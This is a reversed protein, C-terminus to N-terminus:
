GALLVGERGALVAVLGRLLSWATYSVQGGRLVDFAYVQHGVVIVWFLFQYRGKTCKHRFRRQAIFAGPWGGFFELVHLRLESIRWKGSQAQRKDQWYLFYSTLSAAVMFGAIWLSSIPFTITALAVFPLTLLLALLLWNGVSLRDTRRLNRAQVAQPRGRKDLGPVFSVRDGPQPPAIGEVIEQIHLFLRGEGRENALFGYGRQHNWEIVRATHHDPM